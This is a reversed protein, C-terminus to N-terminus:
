MDLKFGKWLITVRGNEYILNFLYCKFNIFDLKVFSPKLLFYLFFFQIFSVSSKLPIKHNFFLLRTTENLFKSFIFQAYSQLSSEM